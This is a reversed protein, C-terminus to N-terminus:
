EGEYDRLAPKKASVVGFLDREKNQQAWGGQSSEYTECGGAYKRGYYRIPMFPQHALRHTTFGDLPYDAQPLAVLGIPQARLKLWYERLPCEADIATHTFDRKRPVGLM